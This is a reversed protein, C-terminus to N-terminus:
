GEKGCRSTRWEPGKQTHTIFSQKRKQDMDMETSYYCGSNEFAETMDPYVNLLLCVSGIDWDNVLSLSVKHTGCGSFTGLEQGLETNQPPLLTELIHQTIHM